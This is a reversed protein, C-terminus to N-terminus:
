SPKYNGKGVIAEIRNQLKKQFDDITPKTWTLFNYQRTDFHIENSKLEKEECIWIVPINLGLAFGAEFYVGGRQGTFDAILFKSQRIQAIIEDDIRNVHEHKDVRFPRYGSNNIAEEIILELDDFEKKFNMAIFGQVSDINVYNLSEIFSWGSPSIKITNDIKNLFKKHYILYDYLIFYLEDINVAWSTALLPLFYKLTKLDIRPGGEVEGSALIKLQAGLYSLNFKIEQGAIPYQESLYKMLKTAKIDVNPQKIEKLNDIEDEAIFSGQHERIWSSIVNRQVDNIPYRITPDIIDDTTKYKGCRFCFIEYKYPDSIQNVFETPMKCIPCLDM